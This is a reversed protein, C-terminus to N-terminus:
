ACATGELDRRSTPCVAAMRSSAVGFSVIRCRQGCTPITVIDHRDLHRLRSFSKRWEMGEVYIKIRGFCSLGVQWATEDAVMFDLMRPQGEAIVDLAETIV